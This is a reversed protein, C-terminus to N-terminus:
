QNTPEEYPLGTETKPKGDFKGDKKFKYTTRDYVKKGNDDRPASDYSWMTAAAIGQPTTDTANYGTPIGKEQYLKLKDNKLLPEWTKKEEEKKAAVVKDYEDKALVIRAPIEDAMKKIAAIDYSKGNIDGKYSALSADAGLAKDLPTKCEDEYLKQVATSDYSPADKVKDPEAESHAKTCGAQAKALADAIDAPVTKGKAANEPKGKPENTTKGDGKDKPCAALALVLSFSTVLKSIRM